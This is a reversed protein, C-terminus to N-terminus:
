AVIVTAALGLLVAVIAILVGARIVPTAVLPSAEPPATALWRVVVLLLIAIGSLLGYFVGFFAVLPADSGLWKEATGFPVSLPIALAALAAFYASRAFWGCVVTATGWIGVALRWNEANANIIAFAALM